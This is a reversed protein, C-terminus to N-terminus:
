TNCLTKGNGVCSAYAMFHPISSQQMVGTLLHSQPGIAFVGVDDGAHVGITGHIYSPHIFDAEDILETLDIREGTEDLYQNTGVAYNLTAYKVGNVDTDHPNLGLIPSGRGPYGSISLPHAHDSTVVILTEDLDVVGLAAEVANSLENTEDLSRAPNNFHNGYDILGGEIFVFYGKENKSLVEIAKTTLESLTPQQTPDADLHFNMTSSGFTGILSKIKSANVSLLQDRNYAWVGGEHLSQWKSLLNVGDSREGQKGFPDTITNPLFKGIGGGLMVDFNKGPEQTILQTAIDTCTAPDNIGDGYTVIDTDCEFFRNTTHAYSGSPSAHTLTTTTVFGTSKGQAQSWAAISSVHNAPDESGSCNNFTVASTIGLAVINTKVGCLYATATCASDAVQANSCYTRSLGSYPFKEFSLSDEEGTNGKLQGKRIRAAAVTTLSMGDGLFMIVNKAKRKDIKGTPLELRKTLEQDAIDYWFQANMEEPPTYKNRGLANADFDYSLRSKGAESASGVLQEQNHVKNLDISLSWSSTVLVSLLLTAAAFRAM